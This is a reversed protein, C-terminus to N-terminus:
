SKENRSSRCDFNRWIESAMMLFGELDQNQVRKKEQKKLCFEIAEKVLNLKEGSCFNKLLCVGDEEYNNKIKKIKESSYIM